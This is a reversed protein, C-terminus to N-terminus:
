EITIEMYGSGIGSNVNFEGTIEIDDPSYPYITIDAGSVTGTGFYLTDETEYIINVKELYSRVNKVKEISEFFTELVDFVDNQNWINVIFHYPEGDYEFWEEVKSRGFLSSLLREVAAKTGKLRKIYDSSRILEIKSKRPLTNKYFDVDFQWALEDLIDDSLNDLEGYFFALFTSRSVKYYVEKLAKCMAQTTKDQQMYITQFDIPNINKLDKM